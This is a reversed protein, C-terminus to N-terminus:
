FQIKSVIVIMIFETVKILDILHIQMIKNNTPAEYLNIKEEHHRMNASRTYKGNATRKPEKANSIFVSKFRVSKKEKECILTQIGKQISMM